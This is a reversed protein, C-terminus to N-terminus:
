GTVEATTKTKTTPEAVESWTEQQLLSETLEASTSIPEGRRVVVGPLAPITIADHPGTYVIRRTRPPV